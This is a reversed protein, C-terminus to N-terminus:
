RYTYLIHGDCQFNYAKIPNICLTSNINHRLASCLQMAEERDNPGMHKWFFLKQHFSSFFSPLINIISAM